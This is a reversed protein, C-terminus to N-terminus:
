GGKNRRESRKGGVEVWGGMVMGRGGGEGM